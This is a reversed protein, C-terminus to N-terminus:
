GCNSALWVGISAVSTMMGAVAPDSFAAQSFAVAAAPNSAFDTDWGVDAFAAGIADLGALTQDIEDAIEPAQEKLALMTARAEEFQQEPDGERSLTPDGGVLDGSANVAATIQDCDVDGSFAAPASEDGAAESSTDSDASGAATAASDSDVAGTDTDPQDSGSDAGEGSSGCAGAFLVALSLVWVWRMKRDGQPM